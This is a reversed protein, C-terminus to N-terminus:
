PQGTVIATVPGLCPVFLDAESFWMSQVNTIRNTQSHSFLPHFM